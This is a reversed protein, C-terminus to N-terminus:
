FVRHYGGKEYELAYDFITELYKPDLCEAVGDVEAINDLSDPGIWEGRAEDFVNWEFWNGNELHLELDGYQAGRQLILLANDNPFDIEAIPLIPFNTKSHLLAKQEANAALDVLLSHYEGGTAKVVVMGWPTQYQLGLASERDRYTDHQGEKTKAFAEIAKAVYESTFFQNNIILM